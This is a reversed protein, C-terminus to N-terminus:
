PHDFLRVYDVSLVAPFPTSADPAGPWAGGVALNLLAVHPKDFEWGDEASMSAREVTGFPTGDFYWTIAEPTWWIGYTHWGDTWGPAPDVRAGLGYTPWGDPSAANPGHLAGSVFAMDNISEMVDIEGTFPWQTGTRIDAGLTWFAPWLGPGRPIQMRAVLYGYRFEHTGMLRASTYANTIGDWGTYTERRAVIQLRGRGDLRVNHTRETYHQLEGDGWAGGTQREWQADPPAGRPGDFEDSWLLTRRPAADAPSVAVVPLVALALLVACLCRRLTSM